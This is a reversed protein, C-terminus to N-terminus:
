CRIGGVGAFVEKGEGFFIWDVEGFGLDEGEEMDGDNEAGEDEVLVGHSHVLLGTADGHAGIACDVKGVESECGDFELGGREEDGEGRTIDIIDANNGGVGVRGGFKDVYVLGM